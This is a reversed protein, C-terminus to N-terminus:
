HLSSSTTVPGMLTDWHTAARQVVADVDDALLYRERVLAAAAAKIKELYQERSSYREDISPRPDSRQEREAKTRAFPIYSGLLNVILHTGGIQPNRFNWGTYTALPVSVEPLRIGARENGDADVEPVLHPLLRGEAVSDGLLRNVVRPGAAITRPPQVGPIAPFAVKTADVLTRDSLKPVQSAPPMTGLRVWNDLDTILARWAWGYETPNGRQQGSGPQPPFAAPGHQSGAFLYSRVNAPLDIDRTGDPTTHTLAAARGSSSWYEVGTNTLFVKPQHRSARSNELLGDRVGDVPDVLAQAAYPFETAPASASTPTAWRRNLDLRAAGAVNAMVADFVQREREDTNFGQYLFTRLFRGSQSNGYAYVYKSPALASADHKLWTSFDRVAAFGLGSVPPNSAHFSLDYIRGPEFGSELTVTAGSLKWRDRPITVGTAAMTDRVTLIADAASPDMATYAAIDGVRFTTGPRDPVFSARVIGTIPKGNDSAVPVKIRLLDGEAALDFEWGVAAITFGRRLLFGDGADPDNSRAARDFLPIVTKTGRNVIDVIAVGNGGTKPRIVYFDAAFEVRGSANKPAKDLDAVILNHADKPDVAFYITGVVKEYGPFALDTRSTIEVRTVEAAAPVATLLVLAILWRVRATM